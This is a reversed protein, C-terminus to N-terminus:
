PRSFQVGVVCIGGSEELWRVEFDRSQSVGPVLEHHLKGRDGRQLRCGSDLALCCGGPSINLLDAQCPFGQAAVAQSEIRVPVSTPLETRPQRRKRHWDLQWQALEPPDPDRAAGGPAEFDSRSREM